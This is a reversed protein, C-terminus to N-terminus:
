RLRLPLEISPSPGELGGSGRRLPRGLHCSSLPDMLLCRLRSYGMIVTNSISVPSVKSRYTPGVTEFWIKGFPGQLISRRSRPSCSTGNGGGATCIGGSRAASSITSNRAWYQHIHHPHCPDRGAGSDVMCSCSSSPVEEVLTLLPGRHGSRM